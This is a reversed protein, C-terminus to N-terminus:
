RLRVIAEEYEALAAFGLSSYCAVAAANDALVNLGIIDVTRLLEACLRDTVAVAHGRGRHDPHTVINGIAAVRRGPSYVHPGAASILQGDVRRGYYHGTDLQSPAFWSGPYGVAYLARLEAEDSRSLREVDIAGPNDLRAHILNMKWHPGRSEFEMAALAERCGPSLHAYVRDPLEARATRLLEHLPEFPPESLAMLTPLEFASYLLLVARLEGAEELGFWATRSWYPEDLDGLAYVHLAANRELFSAIRDRDTLRLYPM